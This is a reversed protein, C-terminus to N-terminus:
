FLLEVNDVELHHVHSMVAREIKEQKYKSAASKILDNVAAASDELLLEKM